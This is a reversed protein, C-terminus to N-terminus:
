MKDNDSGQDGQVPPIPAAIMQESASLRNIRMERKRDIASNCYRGNYAQNRNRERKDEWNATDNAIGQDGDDVNEGAVDIEM